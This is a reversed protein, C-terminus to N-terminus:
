VSGSVAYVIASWGTDPTGSCQARAYLTAGSSITRQNIHQVANNYPLLQESSNTSFLADRILITSGNDPSVDWAYTAFNQVANDCGVGLQFYWSDAGISGLSTWAGESVGGPTVATGSSSALTVGVATVATGAKAAGSIPQGFVDIVVRVTGVTANNVSAQAAFSSGAPAYIPFYYVMGGGTTAGVLNSAFLAPILTTWSTGGATDVGINVLCNKSNAAVNTGYLTIQIGYVASTVSAGALIQAYAPFTNNGPTIATGWAAAPRTGSVNSAHFGFGGHSAINTASSAAGYSTFRRNM